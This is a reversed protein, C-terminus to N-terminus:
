SCSCNVAPNWMTFTGSPNTWWIWAHLKYSAPLGFRNDAPMLMFAHGFLSPPTSHNVDWESQLVVYELAGLQLRGEDTGQYVLAQPRAPDLKGSQLLVPNAYHIGMAGM